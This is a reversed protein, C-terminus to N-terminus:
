AMFTYPPTSTYIWIKKVEASTPPSHDAESWPRKVGQSSDGTGVPYSAPHVGSTTQVVQLVSIWSGVPVRYGVGWDDLKYAAAMSLISDRNPVARTYIATHARKIKSIACM